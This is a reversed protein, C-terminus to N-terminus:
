KSHAHTGAFYTPAKSSSPFEDYRWVEIFSLLCVVFHFGTFVCGCIILRFFDKYNTGGVCNNLWQSPFPPFPAPTFFKLRDPGRYMRLM